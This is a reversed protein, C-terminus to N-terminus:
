VERLTKRQFLLCPTPSYGVAGCGRASAIAIAIAITMTITIAIGVIAHPLVLPAPLAHVTPVSPTPGNM